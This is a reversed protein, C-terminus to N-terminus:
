RNSFVFEAVVNIIQYLFSVWSFDHPWNEWYASSLYIFLGFLNRLFQYWTWTELWNTTYAMIRWLNFKCRRKYREITLFRNFNSLNCPFLYEFTKRQSIKTLISNGYCWIVYIFINKTCLFLLFSWIAGLQM